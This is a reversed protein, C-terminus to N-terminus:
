PLRDKLDPELCPVAESIVIRNSRRAQDLDVSLWGARQSRGAPETNIAGPMRACGIASTEMMTANNAASLRQAADGRHLAAAM